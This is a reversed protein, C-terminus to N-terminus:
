GPGPTFQRLDMFEELHNSLGHTRKESFLFVMTKMLNGFFNVKQFFLHLGLNWFCEWLTREVRGFGLYLESNPCQTPVPCPPSLSGRELPWRHAPHREKIYM